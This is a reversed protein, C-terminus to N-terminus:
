KNQFEKIIDLNVRYNNKCIKLSESCSSIQTVYNFIGNCAMYKCDYVKQLCHLYELNKEIYYKEVNNQIYRKEYMCEYSKKSSISFKNDKRCKNNYNNIRDRLQNSQM